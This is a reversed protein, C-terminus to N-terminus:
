PVYRATGKVGYAAGMIRWYKVSDQNDTFTEAGRM